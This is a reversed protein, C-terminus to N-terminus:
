FQANIKLSYSTPNPLSVGTIISQPDVGRLKKDAWFYLNNGSLTVRASKFWAAKKTLIDYSLNIESLRLVGANVVMLDSRNYAFEREIFASSNYAQQINSVLGPINTTAEDGPLRWRAAVDKQTALNDAYNKRIVANRFVKNGFSYTFFIRLEFSKYVFSNTFSGTVTPDRSGQYAILSDDQSSLQINDKISNKAGYFLPQGAKDLGAFRYAYLGNLPKGVAGYGSPATKQSLLPSFVGDTVRNKVQGMLVNFNWHFDKTRIIDKIGLTIDVGKNTLSAWNITKSTFGDEYAVFRSAVLDKNKRNYYEATLTVKNFLGIDVGVSTTYDKEWNLNYLEPSSISIGLENYDTNGRNANNYVANLAPSNQWANGRLAYSGRVKLFDINGSANMREMFKEKVVNWALGISYNPLFRSKTGSGFLNSGDVRAALDVIYKQNFAYNTSLFFATKNEHTFGEVYYKEDREIAQRFALVSPSIIGGAYYQYGYGRLYNSSVKDSAIEFGGFVNLAHVQNFNHKWDLAHRMTLFTGRNTRQDLIGGSPLITQPIANPDNPDKYLLTNLDAISRPNDVRYAAAVNSRETMVHSYDATTKRVAMLAEYNLGPIIKYTLKLTTRIEQSKLTNFNENLEQLINFPAYDRLYYKANGNEDYPTMARSTNVAYSFPNLEFSRTVDGNSTGSNFTGPATQDRYVFNTIFDIDLKKSMNIITRFNGTYRNVGYGKAQGNDNLYSGSIFYTAKDGGGSVSLNHEQVLNNRFLVDFWDTNVTRSKNMLENAKDMTISRQTYQNYIDTFAGTSSPYNLVSLYGFRYLEYSLDMQEKSDMLNFTTVSPKIGLTLTSSANVSLQGKKGRKTTISIVGNAARTGYLSTASGDKLIAIDEIDAANLGAIASGLLAAPDGSYLQNPQINAPSSVPVGDVVYLPEQNASISASGRIRIKPSSGFTSSVNEVSVGAVAGQLMRSVDGVGSRQILANDVKGVSGTFTEKKIQQFGTIIVDDLMKASMKLSVTLAQESRVTVEQSTYGAHSVLLVDGTTANITFVGERNTIANIHAKGRISVTAGELAAGTSDIIKGSIPGAPLYANELQVQRTSAAEPAKAPSVFISKQGITYKLGQGKFAADLISELPMGAVDLSVPKANKLLAANCVVVYGTQEKIEAFVKELPMNKGHISVLQSNGRASVQLCTLLIFFSTMRMILLTKHLWVRMPTGKCHHQLQM